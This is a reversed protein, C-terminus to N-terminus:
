PVNDSEGRHARDEEEYLSRTAAESERDTQRSRRNRLVAWAIVLALVLPGVINLLSWNFGGFDM